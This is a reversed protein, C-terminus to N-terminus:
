DLNLMRSSFANALSEILRKSLCYGPLRALCLVLADIYAICDLFCLRSRIFGEKMVDSEKSFGVPLMGRSEIDVVRAVRKGNPEGNPEV